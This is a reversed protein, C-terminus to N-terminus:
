PRKMSTVILVSIGGNALPGFAIEEPREIDAPLNDFVRQVKPGAYYLMWTLKDAVEIHRAMAYIEFGRLWVRWEIGCNPDDMNWDFHQLGIGTRIQPPGAGLIKFM